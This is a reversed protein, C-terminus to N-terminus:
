PNVYMPKIMNWGDGHMTKLGKCDFDNLIRLTIPRLNSVRQRWAKTTETLAEVEEDIFQDSIM